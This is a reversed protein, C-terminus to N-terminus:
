TQYTQLKNLRLQYDPLYREVVSWFAQSHDFVQLHALEHVIVYEALDEPLTTLAANLTINGNSSCSGWKRHMQRFTIRKPNVGMKIAWHHTQRRLDDRTSITARPPPVLPALQDLGERIFAKVQRSNPKLWRPIYVIVGGTVVQMLMTTRNQRRIKISTM